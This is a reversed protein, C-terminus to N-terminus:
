FSYKLGMGVEGDSRAYLGLYVDLVIRRDVALTLIPSRGKEGVYAASLGVIWDKKSIIRTQSSSRTSQVKITRTIIREGGPMEVIREVTVTNTKNMEQKMEDYQQSGAYFAIGCVIALGAAEYRNM